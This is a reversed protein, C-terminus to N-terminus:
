QQYPKIPKQKTRGERTGKPPSIKNLDEDFYEDINDYEQDDNDAPNDQITM